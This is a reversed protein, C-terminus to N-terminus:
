LRAILAVIAAVTVVTAYVTLIISVYLLADGLHDRRRSRM